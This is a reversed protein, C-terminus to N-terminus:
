SDGKLVTWGRHHNRRGRYVKIMHSLTLDHQRCFEALNHVNEYIIGAPSVISFWDQAISEARRRVLDPSPKLGRHGAARREIAEPSSGNGWVVNYVKTGQVMLDAIWRREMAALDSGAATRELIVFSFASDGDINWQEQLPQCHHKNLRLRSHHQYERNRFSKTSGVYRAGTPTHEICYVGGGHMGNRRNM